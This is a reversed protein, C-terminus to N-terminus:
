AANAHVEAEALEVESVAFEFELESLRGKAKVEALYAMAAQWSGEASAKRIVEATAARVKESVPLFREARKLTYRAYALDNGGFREAVYGAAAEWAGSAVARAVIKAVQAKVEAGVQLLDPKPEPNRDIVEGTVPDHPTGSHRPKGRPRPVSAEDADIVKGEMEEASYGVEEPFAARLSAAKACKALQQKPRRVWIDTPIECDKSGKRSYTELWEVPETFPCRVGGVLKYVTVKAWEPFTVKVEQDEWDNRGQGVKVRGKFTRTIMPGYVPEDLGAWLGTRSATTQLEGIGPWVTEIQQGLQSSWMPVIAVPKKFIDLNRARCYQIALMVGEVTKASPFTSEILV